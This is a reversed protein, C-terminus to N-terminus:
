QGHRRSVNSNGRDHKIFQFNSNGLGILRRLAAGLQIRQESGNHDQREICGSGFLSGLQATREALGAGHNTRHIGENSSDSKRVSCGEHCMVSSFKAAHASQFQFIPVLVPEPM